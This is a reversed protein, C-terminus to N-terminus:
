VGNEKGRSCDCLERNSFYCVRFRVEMKGREYKRCQIDAAHLLMLGTISM